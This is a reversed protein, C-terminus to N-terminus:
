LFVDESSEVYDLWKLFYRGAALSSTQQSMGEVYRYYNEYLEKEVIIVGGNKNIAKNYERSFIYIGLFLSIYEFCYKPWAFLFPFYFYTLCLPANIKM